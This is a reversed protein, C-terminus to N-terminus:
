RVSKFIFEEDHREFQFYVDRNRDTRRAAVRFYDVNNKDMKYLLHDLVCFVPVDTNVNAYYARAFEEYCSSNLFIM